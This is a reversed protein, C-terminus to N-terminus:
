AGPYTGGRTSGDKFRRVEGAQATQPAGTPSVEDRSV